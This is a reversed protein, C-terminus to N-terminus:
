RSKSNRKLRPERRRRPAEDLMRNWSRDSIRLIAHRAIRTRGDAEVVAIINAGDPGLVHTPGPLGRRWVVRYPRQATSTRLVVLESRRFRSRSAGVEVHSRRATRTTPM